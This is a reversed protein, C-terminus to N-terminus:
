YNTEPFSRVSRDWFKIARERKPDKLMMTETYCDLKCNFKEDRVIAICEKRVSKKKDRGYDWFDEVNMMCEQVTPVDLYCGNLCISYDDSKAHAKPIFGVLLLISVILGIFSIVTIIKVITIQKM